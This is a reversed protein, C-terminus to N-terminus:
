RAKPILRLGVKNWNLVCNTGQVFCRGFHLFGLHM